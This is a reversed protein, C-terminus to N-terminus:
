THMDGRSGQQFLKLTDEGATHRRSTLRNTLSRSRNGKYLVKLNQEAAM